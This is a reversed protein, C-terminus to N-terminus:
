TANVINELKNRHTHTHKNETKRELSYPGYPCFEVVQNM